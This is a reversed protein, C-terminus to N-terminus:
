GPAKGKCERWESGHSLGTGKCHECPAPLKDTM